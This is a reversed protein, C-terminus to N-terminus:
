AALKGLHQKPSAKFVVALGEELDLIMHKVKMHKVKLILKVDNCFFKMLQNYIM